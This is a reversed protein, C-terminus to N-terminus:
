TCYFHTQTYANVHMQRVHVNVLGDGWVSGLVAQDEAAEMRSARQLGARGGGKDQFGCDGKAWM